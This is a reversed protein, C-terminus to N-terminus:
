PLVKFPLLYRNSSLPFSKAEARRKGRGYFCLSLMAPFLEFTPDLGLKELTPFLGMNDFCVISNGTKSWPYEIDDILLLAIFPKTKM